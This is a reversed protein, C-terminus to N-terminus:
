NVNALSQDDDFALALNAMDFSCHERYFNGDGWFFISIYVPQWNAKRVLPM